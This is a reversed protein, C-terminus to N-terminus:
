RCQIKQGRADYNTYVMARGGDRERERERERQPDDNSKVFTPIDALNEKSQSPGGASEINM